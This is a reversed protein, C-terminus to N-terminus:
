SGNRRCTGPRGAGAGCRVSTASARLVPLGVRVCGDERQFVTAIPALPIVVMTKASAKTRAPFLRHFGLPQDDRPDAHRREQSAGGDHQVLHRGSVGGADLAAGGAPLLGGVAPALASDRAAGLLPQGPPGAVSAGVGSRRTRQPSPRLGRPGRLGEGRSRSGRRAARARAARRGEILAGRGAAADAWPLITSPYGASTRGNGSPVTNTEVDTEGASPVRCTAASAM